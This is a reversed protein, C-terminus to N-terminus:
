KPWSAIKRKIEEDSIVRGNDADELGRQIMRAYALEHLIEDYTSDEPQQEIIATMTAKVNLM